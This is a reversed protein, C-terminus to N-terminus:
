SRPEYAPCEKLDDYPYVKRTTLPPCAVSAPLKSILEKIPHRCDAAYASRVRGLKTREWEVWKCHFCISKKAM